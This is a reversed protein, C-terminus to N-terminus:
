SFIEGAVVAAEAMERQILLEDVADGCRRDTRRRHDGDVAVGSLDLYQGAANRRQRGLLDADRLGQAVRAARAFGVTEEVRRHVAVRFRRQHHEDVAARSRGAVRHEIRANLVPRLAAKGHGVEVIAAAAAIAPSIALRQMQTPALHIDFIGARHDGMEGFASQDVAVLRKNAAATGAAVGGQTRQRKVLDEAGAGTQIADAIRDCQAARGM